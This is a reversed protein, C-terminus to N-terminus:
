SRSEPNPNRLRKRIVLRYFIYYGVLGPLWTFLLVASGSIGEDILWLVVLACAYVSIAAYLLYSGVFALHRGRSGPLKLLPPIGSLFPIMLVLLWGFMIVLMESGGHALASGSVLCLTAVTIAQPLYGQNGQYSM